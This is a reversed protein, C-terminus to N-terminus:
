QTKQLAKDHCGAVARGVSYNLELWSWRTLLLPEETIPQRATSKAEEKHSHTEVHTNRVSTLNFGCQSGQHCLSQTLATKGARPMTRKHEPTTFITWSKAPRKNCNATWHTTCHHYPPIDAQPAQCSPEVVPHWSKRFWCRLELYVRGAEPVNKTSITRELSVGSYSQSHSFMTPSVPIGGLKSYDLYFM